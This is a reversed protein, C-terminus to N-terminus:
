PVADGHHQPFSGAWAPPGGEAQARHMSGKVAWELPPREAVGDMAEAAVMPKEGMPGLVGCTGLM